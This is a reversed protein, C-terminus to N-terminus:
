GFALRGGIRLSQLAASATAATNGATGSGQAAATGRAAGHLGGIQGDDAVQELGALLNQDLDGLLGDGLLAGADGRMDGEGAAEQDEHGGDGVDADAAFDGRVLLALAELANQNVLAALGRASEDDAGGGFAGRFFLQAGVQAEKM